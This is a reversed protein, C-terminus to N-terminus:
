EKENTTVSKSKLFTLGRAINRRLKQFQSYDKIHSTAANLRLSLLQGRWEAVKVQLEAASLGVLEKNFDIKKM